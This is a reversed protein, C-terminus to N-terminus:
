SASLGAHFKGLTYPIVSLLLFYTRYKNYKNIIVHKQLDDEELSHGFEISKHQIFIEVVTKREM